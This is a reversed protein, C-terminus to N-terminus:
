FLFFILMTLFFFYYLFIFMTLFFLFSLSINLLFLFFSLLIQITLFFLFSKYTLFYSSLFLSRPKFYFYIFLFLFSPHLKNFQELVMYVRASTLGLVLWSRHLSQVNSKAETKLGNNTNITPVRVVRRRCTQTKGGFSAALHLKSTLELVPSINFRLDTLKM